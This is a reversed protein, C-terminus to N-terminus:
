RLTRGFIIAKAGIELMSCQRQNGAELTSIGGCYWKWGQTLPDSCAEHYVRQYLHGNASLPIDEKLYFGV